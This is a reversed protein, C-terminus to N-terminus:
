RISRIIERADREEEKTQNANKRGEKKMIRGM